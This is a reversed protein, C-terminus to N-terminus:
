ARAGGTGRDDRGRRLYASPFRRRGRSFRVLEERLEEMTAYREEHKTAMAREVIRALEAPIGASPDGKLAPREGTAAKVLVEMVSGGAYPPERTLIEHLMAGVAFIDAAPGIIADDGLAQEPSMFNPTGVIQPGVDLDPETSRVRGEMPRKGAKETEEFLRAVGWDMLYVEGFDGVMVNSSKIDLHLVGRSHAFALAHCVDVVIDVLDILTHHSLPAKPLSKILSRLTVGDVRKM